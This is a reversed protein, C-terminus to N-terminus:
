AARSCSTPWTRARLAGIGLGLIAAATVAFVPTRRLSRAAFRLDQSLRGSMSDNSM